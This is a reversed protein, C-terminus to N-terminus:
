PECQTLWEIDPVDDPLEFELDGTMRTAGARQALAAAFAVWLAICPPRPRPEFTTYSPPPCLTAARNIGLVNPPETYLHIWHFVVSM